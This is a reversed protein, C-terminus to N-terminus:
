EPDACATDVRGCHALEDSLTQIATAYVNLQMIMQKMDAGAASETAILKLLQERAVTSVPLERRDAIRELAEIEETNLRVQLVKSRPNGRTVKVHPPIPRPTQDEEGAEAEDAIEALRDELNRSM